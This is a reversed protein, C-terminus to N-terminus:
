RCANVGSDLCISLKALTLALWTWALLVFAVLTMHRDLVIRPSIWRAVRRPPRSLVELLRYVPNHERAAGVLLGVLAQGALALLAVEIVAKLAVILTLM